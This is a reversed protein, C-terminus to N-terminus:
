LFVSASIRRSGKYSVNVTKSQSDVTQFKNLKEEIFCNTWLVCYYVLM